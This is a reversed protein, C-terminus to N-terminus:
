GLFIVSKSLSLYFQEYILFIVSTVLILVGSFQKHCCGSGLWWVGSLSCRRRRHLRLPPAPSDLLHLPYRPLHLLSVAALHLPLVCHLLEVSLVYVVGPLAPLLLQLRLVPLLGVLMLNAGGPAAEVAALLLLM